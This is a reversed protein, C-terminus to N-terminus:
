KSVEGINKMGTPAEDSLVFSIRAHGADDIAKDFTMEDDNPDIVRIHAGINSNLIYDDDTDLLDVRIHETQGIMLPDEEVFADFKGKLWTVTGEDSAFAIQPVLLIILSTLSLLIIRM